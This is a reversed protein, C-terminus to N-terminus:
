VHCMLYYMESAIQKCRRDYTEAEQPTGDSEKPDIYPISFRKEAGPVFPCNEDADTCTMVAAFREQPNSSDDFLKSYCILPEDQDDFHVAYRPNEGGPNKVKLGARQIAEVARRNFATAETGGSYTKVNDLGLYDAMVASWIQCFHSRRSNHTCIFTLKAEDKERIYDAINTLQVKRSEVIEAAQGKVNQIYSKLKSYM